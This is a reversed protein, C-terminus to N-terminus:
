RGGREAFMDEFAQGAAQEDYREAASVGPPTRTLEAEFKRVDKAERDRTYIRYLAAIVAGLPATDLDTGALRLEGFAAPDQAASHVLRAAVWWDVGAVSSVADKAAAECEASTVTGDNLQDYLDDLTDTQELMGPVVDSWSRELIKMLWDVAPLAPIRYDVGGLAVVVPRCRVVAAPDIQM